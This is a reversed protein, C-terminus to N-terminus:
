DGPDGSRVDRKGDAQSASQQPPSLEDGGRKKRDRDRKRIYLWVFVATVATISLAAIEVREWVTQLNAKIM